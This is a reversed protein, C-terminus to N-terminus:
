GLCRDDMAVQHFIRHVMNEDGGACGCAEIASTDDNQVYLAPYAARQMLQARLARSFEDNPKGLPPRQKWHAITVQTLLRALIISRQASTM